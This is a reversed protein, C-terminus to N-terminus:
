PIGSEASVSPCSQLHWIEASVSPCDLRPLHNSTQQTIGYKRTRTGLHLSIYPETHKRTQIYRMYIYM